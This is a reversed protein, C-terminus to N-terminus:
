AAGRDLGLMEYVRSRIFLIKKGCRVYPFPCTGDRIAKYLTWTSTDTLSSLEDAQM